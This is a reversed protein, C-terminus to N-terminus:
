QSIIAEKDPAAANLRLDNACCKRISDVNTVVLLTWSAKPDFLTKTVQKQLADELEDLAGDVMLLRPKGAIARAITIARAQSGALPNGDPNLRTDIGAPLRLVTDLLGVAALAASVESITLENRGWRVNELISGALLDLHHVLAIQSRLDALNIQRMDVSDFQIFGHAPTRLGYLLQLLTSKGSGSTGGVAVREGAAIECDMGEFLARGKPYNFELAAIKIEVGVEKNPLSEGGLRELPLDFLHGLKNTSALLDYYSEFYKGFKAFSRAINSVILEAAVLQGLTLERQIVLWGGLGLLATSSLVQLGFSAVIQRMLIHFHHSRATLYRKSFHDATSMALEPGGEMKISIPQRALEELWGVADYKAVSEDIATATAGRGLVFVIGLVMTLMVIDYGLLFPHYFALVMMGILAQLVILGGDLLLTAMAKQFIAVDLFRNVLEPGYRGDYAAPHVRPLRYALDAMCRVFLRRQMIEVVYTQILQMSVMFTLCIFLVLSLVVVPQVLSGFAISNVLLEVTIPTALSFLGVGVAFVAVIGIDRSELRMLRVLRRLPPLEHAAHGSDGHDATATAFPAAPQIALFSLSDNGGALELDRTLRRALKWEPNEAGPGVLVKRLRRDSLVLWRRLPPEGPSYVIVPAGHRPQSLVERIAQTGAFCQLQMAAAVDQLRASWTSPWDGPHALIAREMADRVFRVDCDVGAAKAASQLADIAGQMVLETPGESNAPEPLPELSSM